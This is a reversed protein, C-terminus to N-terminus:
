LVPYSFEPTLETCELGTKPHRLFPLKCLHRPDKTVNKDPIPMLRAVKTSPGWKDWDPFLVRIQDSLLREWDSINKTNIERPILNTVINNRRDESMTVANPHTVHIHVGKAGSFFHRIHEIPVCLKKTLVETTVICAIQMYAWCKECCVGDDCRGGCPRWRGDIDKIDYDFTLYRGYILRDAGKRGPQQMYSFDGFHISKVTSTSTDVAKALGQINEVYIERGGGDGLMLFFRTMPITCPGGLFSEIKSLTDDDM